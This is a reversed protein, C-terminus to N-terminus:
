IAGWPARRGSFVRKRSGWWKASRSTVSHEESWSAAALSRCLPTAAGGARWKPNRPAARPNRWPLSSSSSSSSSPFPVRLPLTRTTVSVVLSGVSLAWSGM